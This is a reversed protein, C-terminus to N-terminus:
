CQASMTVRWRNFATTERSFSYHLTVTPSKLSLCLNWKKFIIIILLWTSLNHLSRGSISSKLVFILCSLSLNVLASLSEHPRAAIQMSLHTTKNPFNVAEYVHSCKDTYVSLVRRYLQWLQWTRSTSKTGARKRSSAKKFDEFWSFFFHLPMIFLFIKKGYWLLFHANVWPHSEKQTPHARKSYSSAMKVGQGTVPILMGTILVYVKGETSYFLTTRNFSFTSRWMLTVAPLAIKLLITTIETPFFPM